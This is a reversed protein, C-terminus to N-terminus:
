SLPEKSPLGAKRPYIRPTGTKKRIIVITRGMEYLTYQRIQPTDGGLKQIATKASDLEEEIDGSKYAAFVGGKKVFPLCYESLTSLNAVARSVCLDFQERYAADRALDEARCHKAQAGELHLAEIVESVFGMKKGVSDIMTIQLKPYLIKLPIGPFGAGSGIDIVKAPGGLDIVRGLMLSDAFHKELADRFEVIRTLNMTKNKEILLEYYHNLQEAQRSSCDIGLSSLEEEIIRSHDTSM